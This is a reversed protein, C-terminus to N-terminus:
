LRLSRASWRGHTGDAGQDQTQDLLVGMPSVPADV